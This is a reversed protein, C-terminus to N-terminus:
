YTFDAKAYRNCNFHVYEANQPTVNLIRENVNSTDGEGPKMNNVFDRLM